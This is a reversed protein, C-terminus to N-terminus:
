ALRFMYGHKLVTCQEESIVGTINELYFRQLTSM